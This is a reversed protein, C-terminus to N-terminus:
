WTIPEKTVTRIITNVVSLAIAQTTPDIIFGTKAQILMGAISLANLWFTKSKFINKGTNM